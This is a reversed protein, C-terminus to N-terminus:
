QKPEILYLPIFWKGDFDSLNIEQSNSNIYQGKANRSIYFVKEDAIYRLVKDRLESLQSTSNERGLAIGILNNKIDMISSLSDQQVKERKPDRKFQKYNAKEHAIGLRILKQAKIKQAFVAMFFIHRFADLKGNVSFSDPESIQKQFQYIIAAKKYLQNVKIAAVPHRLSWFFEYKTFRPKPFVTFALFIFFMTLEFGKRM